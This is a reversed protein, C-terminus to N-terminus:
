KNSSDAYKEQMEKEILLVAKTKEEQTKKSGMISGVKQIMRNMDAQEKPPLVHLAKGMETQIYKGFDMM